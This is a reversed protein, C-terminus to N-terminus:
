RVKRHREIFVRAIDSRKMRKDRAVDLPPTFRLPYFGARKGVSLFVRRLPLSLCGLPSLWAAGGGAAHCGGVRVTRKKKTAHWAAV